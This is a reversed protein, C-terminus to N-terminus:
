VAVIVKSLFKLDEKLMGKPQEPILFMSRVFHGINLKARILM